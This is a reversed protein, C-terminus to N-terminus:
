SQLHSTDNLLHLRPQDEGFTMVSLSTNGFRLRGFHKRPMGLLGAVTVHLIGGHSVVLVTKGAHERTVKAIAEAGRNWFHNGTEGNPIILGLVKREAELVGPYATRIQERTLGSFDGMDRERWIPDLILPRNIAKGITSATEKARHLDSSIITDIAWETQRALRQAIAVAQERGTQDLPVDAHGQWRGHSNWETQGHRVLLITTTEAM